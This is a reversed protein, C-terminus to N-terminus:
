RALWADQWHSGVGPEYQTATASWQRCWGSNPFPRCEYVRGDRPQLVRTGAAYATLGDPFRYGYPGAPSVLTLALTKQLVAGSGRLTGTVVLQHDGPLPSVVPLSLQQGSDHLSATVVGHTRGASDFLSASIDMDGVVTVGFRLTVAGNVITAQAALGTVTLDVGPPVPAKNIQVEARQIGSAAQAHVQNQGQVPAISGDNGVQGARLLSQEANIRGALLYPWQNRLGMAPGAINLRTQLDPREGRSDFIRTVVSDGPALDMSPFISGRVLWATGPPTPDNAFLVDIAQYFSNGTDGIDWIALVVQYGNRQPVQCSHTTQMAPQQLGADISCFPTTEFSTRGLPQNPNWGLRTIFYRFSRAVHNATLTWTFTQTGAALPRKVWRSSSQEDLPSFQALGASAIKGDAPGNAPFGNLGELSQPEYQIAGCNSNGGSRCSLARSEPQSVFGHAGAAASCLLGVGLLLASMPSAPM